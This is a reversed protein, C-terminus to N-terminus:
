YTQKVIYVIEKAVPGAFFALNLGIVGLSAVCALVMGGFEEMLVRM